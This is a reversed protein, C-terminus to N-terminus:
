PLLCRLRRDAEQSERDNSKTSGQSKRVRSVHRGSRSASSSFRSSFLVFSFGLRFWAFVSAGTVDWGRVDSADSM